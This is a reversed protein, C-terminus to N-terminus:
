EKALLSLKKVAAVEEGLMRVLDDMNYLIDGLKYDFAGPKDIDISVRQSAKRENAPVRIFNFLKNRLLDAATKRFYPNFELM